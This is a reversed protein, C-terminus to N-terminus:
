GKGALGGGGEINCEECDGLRIGLKGAGIGLKLESDGAARIGLEPLLQHSSEGAAGAGVGRVCGGEAGPLLQHSSEGAAGAGVGLLSVGIM